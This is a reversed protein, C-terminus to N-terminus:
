GAKVRVLEELETASVPPEAPRAHEAAAAGLPHLKGDRLYLTQGGMGDPIKTVIDKLDRVIVYDNPVEVGSQFWLGTGVISRHGVCLGLFKKGSEVIRGESKVKVDFLATRSLKMDIPFCGGMHMANRGLVCMQMAPYSALSEPYLLSTFIRTRFSVVSREGLVSLAVESLGEVKSDDGLVSGFLVSQPGVTVRDGLVCGAVFATPHIDCGRGIVNVSRAIRHKNFSLAALVRWLYFAVRRPSFDMWYAALAIQNVDLLHSWHRISMAGERSIAYKLDLSRDVLYMNDPVFVRESLTLQLPEASALASTDGERGERIEPEAVPLPGRCLWLPLAAVTEGDPRDPSRAVRALGGLPAKERVFVSDSLVVRRTGSVREAAARKVVKAILHRTFFLHDEVLLFDAQGGREHQVLEGLSRILRVESVFPMLAARQSDVLRQNLVLSEGIPDGFPALRAGTQLIYARM